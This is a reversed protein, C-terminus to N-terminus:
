ARVRVPAPPAERPRAIARCTTSCCPPRIATSDSSPLPEVKRTMRGATVGPRAAQDADLDARTM